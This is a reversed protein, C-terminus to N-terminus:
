ISELFYITPVDVVGAKTMAEKLGASAAFAKAMKTDKTAGVWDLSFARTLGSELITRMQSQEPSYDVICSDHGAQPPLVLTPVVQAKTGTTSFDRLWAVPDEFCISHPTHWRPPKRDSVAVAWMGLDLAVDWPMRREAVVSSIYDIAGHMTASWGDFALDTSVEAYSPPCNKSM